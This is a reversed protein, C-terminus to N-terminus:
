RLTEALAITRDRGLASEFRYTVAGTSWALTDGVLRRSEYTPEGDPAVYIFEHAAGSIWYGAHGAVKVPEITSGAALIKEFYGADLTGPFESLILGVGSEETAPLAPRATWVLSVRGVDDIWVSYPPGVRPDTPLAIQFTAIKQAEALPLPRGLGLGSGPSSPSASVSASPVVSSSFSPSAPASGAVVSPRPTPASIIRLGPLGLGIAGAIAALVLVAAIALVVSRRVSRLGRPSALRRLTAGPRAAGAAEIRLRVRRALDVGDPSTTEPLAVSRGLERLVDELGPDPLQAFSRLDAM